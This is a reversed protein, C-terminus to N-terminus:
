WGLENGWYRGWFGAAMSLVVLLLQLRRAGASRHDDFGFATLILLFPTFDLMFRYGFQVWGQSYHLFLPVCILGIALWCAPRLMHRGKAFLAFVYAPSTFLISLGYPSPRFISWDAHFDPPMMFLVHLHLPINRIDFLNFRPASPDQARYYSYPIGAYAEYVTQYGSQFPDDFRAWNYWLTFLGFPAMGAAFLLVRKIRERDKLVARWSQVAFLRFDEHGHRLFYYLFFPAALLVPGRSLYAFGLAVAPLYPPANRLVLIIAILLFFVAAVHNYFWLTGTTAAYFHVTGFAFFPVMLVKTTRTINLLKLVYWFLAVNVAGLTMAFQIESLDTGWIAVFPLLLIAPGPGYPLYKADGIKVTDQWFDPIGVSGVDFTGHLMAEALYIQHEYWRIPDPRSLMFIVLTSAFIVFPLWFTTVLGFALDYARRQPLGSSAPLTSGSEQRM